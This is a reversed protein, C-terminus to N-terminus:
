YMRALTMGFRTGLLCLAVSATVNLLAYGYRSEMMLTVTELSFSSFTTFGGLVGVILFLRLAHSAGMREILWVYLIGITFSGLINVLVTGLPFSTGAVRQVSMALLYRLISGLAGGAGIALLLNV